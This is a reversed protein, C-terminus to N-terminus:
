HGTHLRQYTNAASLSLLGPGAQVVNVWINSTSTPDLGGNQIAAIVSIVGPGQFTFTRGSTPTTYPLPASLTLTGSDSQFYYNTGGVGITFNGSITNYGAINEIAPTAVNRGALSIDPAVTISGLTGDLGLTSSGGNNDAITIYPFGPVALMNAIAGNNAIITYGDNASTSASDISLAGAYTNPGALVLRGSGTKTIVGSTDGSINNSIMLTSNTGNVMMHSTNAVDSVTIGINGDDLIVNTSTGLTGGNLTVQSPNFSGPVPGFSLPGSVFFGGANITTLGTYNNSSAVNWTSGNVTINGAGLSM